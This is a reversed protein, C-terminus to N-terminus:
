GTVGGGAPYRGGRKELSLLWDATTLLDERKQWSAGGWWRTLLQEVKDVFQSSPNSKRLRESEIMLAERRGIIDKQSRTRSM